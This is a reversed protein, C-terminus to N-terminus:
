KAQRDLHLGSMFSFRITPVKKESPRNLDHEQEMENKDIARTVAIMHRDTEGSTAAPDRPGPAVRSENQPPHQLDVGEEPITRRDYRQYHSKVHGPHNESSGRGESSQCTMCCVQVSTRSRRAQQRPTVLISSADRNERRERCSNNAM